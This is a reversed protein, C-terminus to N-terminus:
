HLIVPLYLEPIFKTEKLIMIIWEMWNCIIFKILQYKEFCDTAQRDNVFRTM